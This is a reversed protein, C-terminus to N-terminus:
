IVKQNCVLQFHNTDFKMMLRMMFTGYCGTLKGVLKLHVLIMYYQVCNECKKEKKIMTLKTHARLYRNKINM